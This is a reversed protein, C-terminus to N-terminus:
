SCPYSSRLDVAGNGVLWQSWGVGQDWEEVRICVHSLVKSSVSSSMLMASIKKTRYLLIQLKKTCHLTKKQLVTCALVLRINQKTYIITRYM